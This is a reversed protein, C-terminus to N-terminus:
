VKNLKPCNTIGYLLFTVSTTLSISFNETSSKGVVGVNKLINSNSLLRFQIKKSLKIKLGPHFHNNNNINDIILDDFHSGVIMIKHNNEICPVSFAASMTGAGLIIIDAM